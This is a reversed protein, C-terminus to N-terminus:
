FAGSAVKYVDPHAVDASYSLRLQTPGSPKSAGATDANIPIGTAVVEVGAGANDVGGFLLAAGSANLVGGGTKGAPWAQGQFYNALQVGSVVVAKRLEDSPQPDGGAWTVNIRILTKKTAGFVYTVVAKGPGPDIRDVRAVLATTHEVPNDATTITAPDLAFDRAAAARVEDPTM